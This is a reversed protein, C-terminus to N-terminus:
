NKMNEDFYIIAMRESDKEPLLAEGKYYVQPFVIFLMKKQKLLSIKDTNKIRFSLHNNRLYISDGDKKKFWVSFYVPDRIELDKMDYLDSIFDITFISNQGFHGGKHRYYQMGDIKLIYKVGKISDIRFVDFFVKSDSATKRKITLPHIYHTFTYTFELNNALFGKNSCIGLIISDEKIINTKVIFRYPKNMQLDPKKTFYINFSDRSIKNVNLEIQSSLPFFGLCFTVSIILNKM